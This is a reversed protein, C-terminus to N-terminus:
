WSYGDIHILWTRWISKRLKNWCSIDEKEEIKKSRPQFNTILSLSAYLFQRNQSKSNRDDLHAILLRTRYDVMHLVQPVFMWKRKKIMENYIQKRQCTM